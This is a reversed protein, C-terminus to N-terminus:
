ADAVFAPREGDADRQFPLWVLTVDSVQLDSKRPRLSLVEIPHADEDFKDTLEEAATEFAAELDRLRDQLAAVDAKAREVDGRERSVRSAGSVARGAGTSFKRRGFLAGLLSTGVSVATRLSQDRLQGEQTEVKAEAKRIRERLRGFKTEYKARLKGLRADRVERGAQAVRGAFQAKTEDTEAVLKLKACRPVDLPCDRYLRAKAAKQLSKVKAKTLMGAPLAEFGIDPEAEELIDLSGDPVVDAAQWLKSASLKALPALAAIDRFVDIGRRKDAYHLQASVLLGPRYVLEGTSPLASLYRVPVHSPVAPETTAPPDVEADTGQAVGPGSAGPDDPRTSLRAIQPLTLPGCLYSMAWRTRFRVPAEERVNHLMFTRSPLSSLAQDLAARDMAQGSTQVAGELGDLLRDKDRQAQLRGIFWTGCNTLAKYDVDIPNQTALALGVGFARAQKLLTILPRKSPPEAVPPLFGFVEDMYLLARLSPTGPQKRMWAVLEGLLLTVFFMRESDSLHAISLISLRPKGGETWLLRDIDLPEGTLWASLSPSALLGNLQLALTQREREPYFTDLELVGIRDFGPRMVGQVLSALDLKEGKTWARELLQSLLIHERGTFPDSEVNALALLSSVTTSIRERMAPDHGGRATAPMSLSRLVSLPRGVRSGPTYIAMDAAARLRGIRAGDQGWKDLGERWQKAVRSAEAEPTTGQRGASQADVWPGFDSPSLEPFTLLLNGLDGKPDIAIVPVGDLLAEELLSICLGTKGSGTMGVCLAHTTLDNADYLIDEDLVKDGQADLRRGLYFAGLKEYRPTSGSM